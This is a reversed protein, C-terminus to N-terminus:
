ITLAITKGTTIYPHSFEVMFFATFLSLSVRETTDSEKHGWPSCLWHFERPWFGPTPLQLFQLFSYFHLASPQLISTTDSFVRSPRKFELSILGTFELPFWGQISVPLVSASPSAGISQGDSTFLQNMPFSGSAPISQLCFSFAAASSSFTLYCLRSLQCSDSCVSFYHLVPSGPTSCEMPYALLQVCTVVLFHVVKHWYHICGLRFSFPKLTPFHTLIIM